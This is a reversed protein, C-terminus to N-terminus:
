GQKSPMYGAFQALLIEATWKATTGVVKPCDAGSAARIDKCLVSGYAENFREYVQRFLKRSLESGGAFNERSRGCIHGIVMGAGTFSGCNSIGAPTSGGDVCSSALFVGEDAPVFDVADQLAAVTCQACGKMEDEYKYGLDYAAQIIEEGRGAIDFKDNETLLRAPEAATAKAAPEPRPESCGSLAAAGACGTLIRFFSRRNKDLIPGTERMDSNRRLYYVRSAENESGGRRVLDRCCRRFNFKRKKRLKPICFLM